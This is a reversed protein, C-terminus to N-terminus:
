NSLTRPLAVALAAQLAAADLALWRACVPQDPLALAHASYVSCWGLHWQAGAHGIMALQADIRQKVAEPRLAEEASEGAPPQDDVRWIGHPERIVLAYDLCPERVPCDNCIRKARSERLERELRREALTPPFFLVSEPGRCSAERQWLQEDTRVAM